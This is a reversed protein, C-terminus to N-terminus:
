NLPYEMKYIADDKEFLKNNDKQKYVNLNFFSKINRFTDRLFFQDTTYKEFKDMTDGNSLKDLSIEPFQQLKRRESVSILNDKSIINIVFVAILIIVFGITIIINKTKNQM